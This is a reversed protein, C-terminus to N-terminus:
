WRNIIAMYLLLEEHSLDARLQNAKEMIQTAWAKLAIKKLPHTEHMSKLTASTQKDQLGILEYVRDKGAQTLPRRDAQAKMESQKRALFAKQKSTM